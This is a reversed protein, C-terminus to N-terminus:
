LRVIHAARGVDLQSGPGVAGDGGGAVRITGRIFVGGGIVAPLICMKGATNNESFSSM